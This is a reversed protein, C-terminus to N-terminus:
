LDWMDLGPKVIQEIDEARFASTQSDLFRCMNM